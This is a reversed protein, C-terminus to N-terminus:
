NYNVMATRFDNILNDAATKDDGTLGYTFWEYIKQNTDYTNHMTTFRPNISSGELQDHFRHRNLLGYFYSLEYDQVRDEESVGLLGELFYAMTGTRDTGIKCHFYINQNAIVDLMTDVLAQRFVTYNANHTTPNILYNTIERPQFNSFRADGAGESSGRLDLEETIGLKTLNVVDTNSSSLKAGRFLRGYKLTGDVTGDNDTDVELGGLDRVNRVSTTIFRRNGTAKVLGHINSDNASEWYYTVGPIM